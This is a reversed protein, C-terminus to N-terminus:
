GGTRKVAEAARRIIEMAEIDVGSGGAPLDAMKEDLEKIRQRDGDSLRSKSLLATREQIVADYRASRATPLGFLDSTLLQDVRWGTVARPTQDIVVHDGDRRLVVIKADEAAQVMLPSHATIIFQTNIFRESLWSMLHRQWTPHLHLDIEDILVIAPEAIPDNSDPWRRGMRAALDVMWATMTRYGLGMFSFPVEGYPTRFLVMPRSVNTNPGLIRVNDVGPLIEVLTKKVLELRNLYKDKQDGAEARVAAYDAQLLWEEPNILEKDDSFLSLSDFESPDSGLAVDYGARRTAGYGYCALRSIETYKAGQKVSDGTLDSPPDIEVGTAFSRYASSSLVLPSGIAFEADIVVPKNLPIRVLSRGLDGHVLWPSAREKGNKKAVRPAMGAIAQLLTTKGVGNEGLILTWRALRGDDLTLDLKQRPGFCLANELSISALYVADGRATM